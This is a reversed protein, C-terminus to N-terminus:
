KAESWRDAILPEAKLPVALEVVNEMCEQLIQAAQEAQDERVICPIEDHVQLAVYGDIEQKRFERAVAIMARNVIHAALGQIPFNKANNLLNKLEGREKTLGNMIAYKAGLLEEGYLTYLSAARKLHRVRGFITKVKGKIKADRECRKMYKKLNPYTKLYQNITQAATKYDVEMSQAIRGPGSGYPVALTFIKSRKRLEPKSKKLYNGAKKDASVDKIKFVDIAVRSYIDEGKHFVEQLRRDGSMTAFCMPELSSYDSNVIKYGKPAKFGARIANTYKIVVPSLGSDEDKHSSQNQLNPNRSAYRGSTTGYQLMSTYIVGDIQRDLIGIVYTSLLKNLKRYDLLIDLFKYRKNYKEIIEDLIDAKTSPKGSDTRKNVPIGLQDFLLYALQDSSNLNFVYRRNKEKRPKKDLYIKTQAM